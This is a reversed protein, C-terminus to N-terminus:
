SAADYLELTSDPVIADVTGTLHNYAALAIGIANEYPPEADIDRQLCNRIPAHPDRNDM